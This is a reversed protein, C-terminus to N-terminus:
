SEHIYVKHIVQMVIMSIPSPLSDSFVDCNKISLFEQRGASSPFCFCSPRATTSVVPESSAGLPSFLVLPKADQIIIMLTSPVTLLVTPKPARHYFELLNHLGFSLDNARMGTFRCTPPRIECRSEGITFKLTAAHIQVLRRYAPLKSNAQREQGNSPRRRSIGAITTSFYISLTSLRNLNRMDSNSAIPYHSREETANLSWHALDIRRM